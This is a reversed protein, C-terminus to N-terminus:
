IDIHGDILTAAAGGTWLLGEDLTFDVRGLHGMATGQRNSFPLAARGSDVLWQAIGANLSGTVPDERLAGHNFNFARVEFAADSGGPLAGVVGIKWKQRHASADPKLDLVTQASDLLVASWGPGNDVWQTALIQSDDVGLIARVAERRQADFEGTRQLPPSVFAYGAAGFKVPVIGAACQAHIKGPVRPAGGAALWAHATGLTPHGAFPFETDGSFIRFRYDAAREQTPLIFTVESLNSWRSYDRMQEDSLGSGDLVVGLPNGKFPHGSFVDVQMFRRKM